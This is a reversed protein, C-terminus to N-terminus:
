KLEFIKINNFGPTCPLTSGCIDMYVGGGRERERVCVCVCVCVCVNFFQDANLQQLVKLLASSNGGSIASFISGHM